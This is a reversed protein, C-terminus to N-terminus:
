GVKVQVKCISSATETDRQWNVTLEYDDSRPTASSAAAATFRISTPSESTAELGNQTAQPSTPKVTGGGITFGNLAQADFSIVTSTGQTLMIPAGCDISNVVGPTTRLPVAGADGGGGQLASGVAIGIYVAFVTVIGLAAYPWSIPHAGFDFWSRMRDMFTEDSVYRRTVLPGSASAAVGAAAAREPPEAQRAESPEDAFVDEGSAQVTADDEPRSWLTRAPPSFVAIPTPLDGSPTGTSTEQEQEDVHAVITEEASEVPETQLEDPQEPGSSAEPEEEPAALGLGPTAAIGASSGALVRSPLDDPMEVDVLAAFVASAGPLSALTARCADCTEAHEAIQHRLAPRVGGGGASGTLRSLDPCAERGRLYLATAAFSDEFAGRARGISAYLNNRTLSAADALEEPALERRLTLDLVCYDRTRLSRAAQWAWLAVEHEQPPDTNTFRPDGLSLRSTSRENAVALVEVLALSYLWTRFSIQSPKESAGDSARLFTAQTVNASVTPDLTARLAFDYVGRAYRGALMALALDDGAALATVLDEDSRQAPGNM